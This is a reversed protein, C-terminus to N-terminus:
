RTSSERVSEALTVPDAMPTASPQDRVVPLRVVVLVGVAGLAVILLNLYWPLNGLTVSSLLVVPIVTLAVLKVRPRVARHRQWDRIFGGFMRSHLLWNNLRKSSRVFFYSALLLFPTTPLGPLIAGVFGLGVFFLGLVIYM